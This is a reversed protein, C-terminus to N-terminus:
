PPHKWTRWDSHHPFLSISLLFLSLFPTDQSHGKTCQPSRLSCKVPFKMSALTVEDQVLWVQVFPKFPIKRPSSGQPQRSQKRGEPLGSSPYKSRSDLSEWSNSNNFFPLLIGDGFRFGSLAPPKGYNGHGNTLSSSNVLWDKSPILVPCGYSGPTRGPELHSVWFHPELGESIFFWIFYRGGSPHPYQNPLM